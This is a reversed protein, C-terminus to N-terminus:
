TFPKAELSAVLGGDALLDTGNIFSAADSLLFDALGAIELMTAERGLPTREFLSRKGPSNAYELAGQPTAILGPSLSVVRNGAEGWSRASRQCLRILGQKSLMYAMAPTAEDGLRAALTEIMGKDLPADLLHLLHGPARRMHAASSAICLAAGGPVMRSSFADLSRAAGVLNVAMVSRFDGLSPSLGVVYAFSRVGGLKGAVAALATIHDPETVDCSQITVDHGSATLEVSVRALHDADRDALLLRHSHGLRRAVAMGLGGAGVVVALPLDPRSNSGPIGTMDSEGWRAAPEM